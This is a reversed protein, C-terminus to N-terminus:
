FLRSIGIGYAFSNYANVKLDNVLNINVEWKPNIHLGYEVGVRVLFLNGTHAFEGGAGMLFSFHKGPKYSGVVATAVPYSRKLTKNDGGGSRLHEEVEYDEIVIDNHLGLAWKPHFKYNYNIGISPFAQWKKDGDSQVGQSIQTHSLVIGLMHHKHFADHVDNEQAIGELTSCISLFCFGIKLIFNRLNGM